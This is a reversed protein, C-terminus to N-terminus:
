EYDQDEEDGITIFERNNIIEVWRKEEETLPRRIQKKKTEVKKPSGARILASVIKFEKESSYVNMESDNVQVTRLYIDRLNNTKHLKKIQVFRNEPNSTTFYIHNRDIVELPRLNHSTFILQGKGHDEFLSLLQGLLFEFIGSDIEDIVLTYSPDNFAQIYSQIFSIMRKIGDSEDNADIVKDGRISSIYVNEKIEYYDSFEESRYVPETKTFRLGLKLGPIIQGMVSNITDVAIAIYNEHEEKIEQGQKTIYYATKSKSGYISPALYRIIMKGYTDVDIFIVNHRAWDSLENIITIPKIEKENTKSIFSGDNALGDELGFLLSTNGLSNILSEEIGSHAGSGFTIVDDYEPNPQVNKWIENFVEKPSFIEFPSNYYTKGSASLFLKSTSYKKGSYEGKILISEDYIMLECVMRRNRGIISCMKKDDTIKFSYTFECDDNGKRYALTLSFSAYSAKNSKNIDKRSFDLVRSCMVNLVTKLAKIFTTKGSGNQGYMGLIDAREPFKDFQIEGHQINRYNDIVFKRIRIIPKEISSSM